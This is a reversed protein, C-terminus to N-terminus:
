EGLFFQLVDRSYDKKYDLVQQVGQKEFTVQTSNKLLNNINPIIIFSSIKLSNYYVKIIFKVKHLKLISLSLLLIVLDLSTFSNSLLPNNPILTSLPKLLENTTDKVINAQLITKKKGTIKTPKMTPLLDLLNLPGLAQRYYPRKPNKLVQVGSNSYGRRIVKPPM